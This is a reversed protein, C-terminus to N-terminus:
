FKELYRFLGEQDKVYDRSRFILFKLKETSYDYTQSVEERWNAKDNRADM